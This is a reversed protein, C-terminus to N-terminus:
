RTRLANRINNCPVCDRKGSARTRINEGALEHGRRCHTMRGKKPQAARWARKWANRCTRCQRSGNPSVYTNSVKADNALGFRHGKPCTPNLNGAQRHTLRRETGEISGMEDIQEAYSLGGVEAYLSVTDPNAEICWAERMISRLHERVFEMSHGELLRVCVEQRVVERILAAVRREALLSEVAALDLIMLM